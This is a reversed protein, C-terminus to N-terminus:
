NEGKVQPLVRILVRCLVRYIIFNDARPKPFLFYKQSQTTDSIAKELGKLCNKAWSLTAEECVHVSFAWLFISGRCLELATDAWREQRASLGIYTLQAPRELNQKRLEPLLKIWRAEQRTQFSDRAM